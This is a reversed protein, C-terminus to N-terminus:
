DACFTDSWNECLFGCACLGIEVDCLDKYNPKYQIDSCLQLLRLQQARVWSPNLHLCQVKEFGIRRVMAM